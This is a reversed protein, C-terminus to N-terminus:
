IVRRNANDAELRRVLDELKKLRLELPANDTERREEAGLPSVSLNGLAVSGKGDTYEGPSLRGTAGDERNERLVAKRRVPNGKLEEPATDGELEFPGGRVSKRGGAFMSKEPPQKEWSVIVKRQEFGNHSRRDPIQSKPSVLEDAAAAVASIVASNQNTHPIRLPSRVPPIPPPGEDPSSSTFSDDTLTPSLNRPRSPVFVRNQNSPPRQPRNGSSTVTSADNPQRTIPIQPREPPIQDAPSIEITPSMTNGLKEEAIDCETGVSSIISMASWISAHREPDPPSWSKSSRSYISSGSSSIITGLSTGSRGAALAQRHRIARREVKALTRPFGSICHTEDGDLQLSIELVALRHSLLIEIPPMRFQLDLIMEETVKPVIDFRQAEQGFERVIFQPTLTAKERILRGLNGIVPTGNPLRCLIYGTLSLRHGTSGRLFKCVKRLIIQSTKL